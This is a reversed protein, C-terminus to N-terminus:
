RSQRVRVLNTLWSYGLKVGYLGIAFGVILIVIPGFDTAFTDLATDLATALTTSDM